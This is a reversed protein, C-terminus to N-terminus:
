RPLMAGHWVVVVTIKGPGTQERAIMLLPAAM